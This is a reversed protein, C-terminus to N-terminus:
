PRRHLRTYSHPKGTVRWAYDGPPLPATSDAPINPGAPAKEYTLIAVTKKVTIPQLEFDLTDPDLIRVWRHLKASTVPTLRQNLGSSSTLMYITHCFSWNFIQEGGLLRGTLYPVFFFTDRHLRRSKKSLLHVTGTPSPLSSM